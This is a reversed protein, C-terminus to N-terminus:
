KNYCMYSFIFNNKSFKFQKNKEFLDYSAIIEMLVFAVKTQLDSIM